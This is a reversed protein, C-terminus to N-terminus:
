LRCIKDSIESNVLSRRIIEIEHFKKEGTWDIGKGHETRFFLEDAATNRIKPYQHILLQTLSHIAKQRIIIMKSSEELQLLAGYFKIAAEIKKFDKCSYLIKDVVDLIEVGKLFVQENLIGVCILFALIELGSAVLRKTKSIIMQLLADFILSTKNFSHCVFDNSSEFDECFNILGARSARIVDQSGDNASSVYGTFFNNFRQLYKHPPFLLCFIELLRHFYAKSSTSFPELLSNIQLSAPMLTTPTALLTIKAENRVRDLNESALRIIRPVLEEFLSEVKTRINIDELCCYKWIVATAKMSEIRLLSGIDGQYTTTYDDLGSKIMCIFQSPLERLESSMYICRMIFLRMEIKNTKCWIRYIASAISEDSKNFIHYIETPFIVMTQIYAKQQELQGDFSMSFANTQWELFWDHNPGCLLGYNAAAISLTDILEEDANKSLQDLLVKVLDMLVHSPGSTIEYAAFIAEYQKLAMLPTENPLSFHFDLIELLISLPKKSEQTQLQAYKNWIRQSNQPIVRRSELEQFILDLKVLGFAPITLQCVAEAALKPARYSKHHAKFEDLISVIDQLLRRILCVFTSKEFIAEHSFQSRYNNSSVQHDWEGFNFPIINMKERLKHKDTLNLFQKIVMTLSLVLGHREDAERLKLSLVEPVIHDIIHVFLDYNPDDAQSFKASVLQGIAIASVRRVSADPNRIGKWGLLNELIAGHYSDSLESAQMAVVEIARTRLSIAHYDVTQVVNIGNEITYPHRGILEQLAAASGRRINGVPDLTAAVVLDSAITQLASPQCKTPFINEDNPKVVVDQLEETTYRRALAWIGFCAADRVNSGILTGSSSRQEFSLGLRLAALLSSLIQPHIAHRYILHSLTMMIGHWKSPDVRSIDLKRVTKVEVWLDSIKSTKSSKHQIEEALELDWRIWEMQKQNRRCLKPMEIWLKNEDLESIISQILECAMDSPLKSTVISIAKSAAFRVPIASDAVYELMYGITSEVLEINPYSESNQLSIVAISRLIKIITKRAIAISNITKMFPNLNSSIEQVLQFILFIHSDMDTTGVSSSLLGAIFSLAGLSGHITTNLEPQLQKVAWKILATMTGNAQMDKRIAFRVLLYKAADKEKSPSYLYHTALPVIRNAIGPSNSPLFLERSKYQRSSTTDSSISSLDFPILLLQSLWLLSIYTVEWGWSEQKEVFDSKSDHSM